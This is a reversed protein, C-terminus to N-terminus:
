NNVIGKLIYYPIWIPSTLIWVGYKVYKLNNKKKKKIAKVEEKPEKLPKIINEIWFSTDDFCIKDNFNSRYKFDLENFSIILPLNDKKCFLILKNLIAVSSLEVCFKERFYELGKLDNQKFILFYDTNQREVNNSYQLSQELSFLSINLHRGRSYIKELTKNNKLDQMCDDFIFLAPKNFEYIFLEDPQKFKVEIDLLQFLPQNQSTTFFYIRDEFINNDKITNLYNIVWTTKGAGRCGILKTSFPHCFDVSIIDKKKIEKKIKFDKLNVLDKNNEINKNCISVKEDGDMSVEKIFQVINENIELEPDVSRSVNIDTINPKNIEKDNNFTSNTEKINQNIKLSLKLKICKDCNVRRKTSPVFQTECTQCIKKVNM